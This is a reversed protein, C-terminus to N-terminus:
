QLIEAIVELIPEADPALEAQGSNYLVSANIEIELRIPSQNITILGMEIWPQLAKRVSDAM